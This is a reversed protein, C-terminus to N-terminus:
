ARGAGVPRATKQAGRSGPQAPALTLIWDVLRRAEAETVSVENPYM